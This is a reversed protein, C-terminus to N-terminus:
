RLEYIEPYTVSMEDPDFIGKAVTQIRNLWLLDSVGTRFTPCSYAYGTELNTRGTYEVFVLGGEATELTL